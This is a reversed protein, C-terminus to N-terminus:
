NSQQRAMAQAYPVGDIMVNRILANGSADVVAQVTIEGRPNGTGEAVYFRELGYDVGIPRQDEAQNEVGRQWRGHSARGKLLVEGTQLAPKEFSAYVLTHFLAGQKLVVYVPKGHADAPVAGRINSREISSIAYNLIVYDGRLLDRPDVSRTELLVAPGRALHAEKSAAMGAIWLVQLAIVTWLWVKWRKHM